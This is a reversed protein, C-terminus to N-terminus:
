QPRTMQDLRRLNERAAEYDPDLEVAKEWQARADRLRGVQVYLIALGNRAELNAPDLALGAEAHRIADDQRGPLTALRMALSFHVRALDPNIRLAEEYHTLAEPLRGPLTALAEEIPRTLLQEIEEPSANEYSSVVSLTPYTIDPMLDIPLRLLSVGGLLIVILVMM